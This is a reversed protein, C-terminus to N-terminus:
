EVKIILNDGENIVQDLVDPSNVGNLKFSLTNKADNCFTQKDGTTLCDKTLKFPLTKFFEDWTTGIKKVHVISSDPDSIYVDSSLNQYMLNNFVRKTGHTYIEFKATFGNIKKDITEISSKTKEYTEIPKVYAQETVNGLNKYLFYGSVALVPVIIVLIILGVSGRKM